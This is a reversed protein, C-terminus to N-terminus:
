SESLLEAIHPCSRLEGFNGPPSKGPSAALFQQVVKPYCVYEAEGPGGGDCDRIIIVVTRESLSLSLFIFLYIFCLDVFLYRRAGRARAEFNAGVKWPEWPTAGDGTGGELRARAGDAVLEFARAVTDPIAM